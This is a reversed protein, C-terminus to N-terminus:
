DELLMYYAPSVDKSHLARSVARAWGVPDTQNVPAFEPNVQAEGFTWGAGGGFDWHKRSLQTFKQATKTIDYYGAGGATKNTLVIAVLKSPPIHPNQTLVTDYDPDGYKGYIDGFNNYFQLNYWDFWGELMLTRYDIGPSVSSRPDTLDGAVPASTFLFADGLDRRLNELLTRLNATTVHIHALNEEIDMDLGDFHYTTLVTKLEEYWIAATPNTTDLLQNYDGVDWGGFTALVKVQHERLIEITEWLPALRPDELYMGNFGICPGKSNARDRWDLHFFALNVHTLYGKKATEILMGLANPAIDQFYTIARPTSTQGATQAFGPGAAVLSLLCLSALAIWRIPAKM